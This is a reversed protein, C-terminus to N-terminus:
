IHTGDRAEFDMLSTVVAVRRWRVYSTTPRFSTPRLLWHDESLRISVRSGVRWRSGSAILNRAELLSRWAYSANSPIRTSFPDSNPFYKCKFIQSLLSDPRTVIRWLQKALM